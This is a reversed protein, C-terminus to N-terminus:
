AASTTYRRKLLPYELGSKSKPYIDKQAEINIILNIYEGTAPVKARFLLDFIVKGETTSNDENQNGKIQPTDQEELAQIVPNTEDKDVPVTSVLPEGEICKMAIDNLSVAKFEPVTRKLIYALLKKQALIQKAQSDYQTKREGLEM